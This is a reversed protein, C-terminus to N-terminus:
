FFINTSHVYYKQFWISWIFALIGVKLSGDFSMIGVCCFKLTNIAKICNALIWKLHMKRRSRPVQEFLFPSPYTYGKNGETNTSVYRETFFAFNATM